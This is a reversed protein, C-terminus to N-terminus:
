RRAERLFNAVIHPGQPTLYSEPHFQVGVIPRDRHRVSMVVGRPARAAILLEPPCSKPDIVLSHYRAAPFPSPVRRFVGQGDHRVPATEGHVPVGARVVRGGFYEGILQHGLCVGLVSVEPGEPALYRRALGTLRTDSPHGPGPSLVVADPDFRQAEEFPVTYRLVRVDANLSGLTQALNYVFSDEHDILLVKM